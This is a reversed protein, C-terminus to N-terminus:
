EENVHAIYTEPDDQGGAANWRVGGKSVFQCRNNNETTGDTKVVLTGGDPHFYFKDGDDRCSRRNGKGTSNNIVIIPWIETGPALAYLEQNAEVRQRWIELQKNECHDPRMRFAPKENVHRENNLKVSWKKGKKIPDKKNGKTFKIFCGDAIDTGKVNLMRVKIEVAAEYVGKNEYVVKSIAFDKASAPSVSLGVVAFAGLLASAITRNM